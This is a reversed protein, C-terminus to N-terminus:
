LSVLKEGKNIIATVQNNDFILSDSLKEVIKLGRGCPEMSMYDYKDLCYDIGRGEDKVTICIKDNEVKLKLDIMKTIDYCNGHECSNIVLENLILRVDFLLDEDSLVGDLSTMLSSISNQIECLDSIFKGAYYYTM